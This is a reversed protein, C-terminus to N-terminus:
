NRAFLPKTLHYVISTESLFQLDLFLKNEFDRKESGNFRDFMTSFTSKLELLTEPM